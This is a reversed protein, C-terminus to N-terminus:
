EKPTVVYDFDDYETDEFEFVGDTIAKLTQVDIIDEGYYKYLAKMADTIKDGVVLGTRVVEDNAFEDWTILKYQWYWIM